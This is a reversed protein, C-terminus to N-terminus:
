GKIEDTLVRWFMMELYKDSSTAFFQHEKHM